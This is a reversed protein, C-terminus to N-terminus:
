GGEEGEFRMYSHDCMRKMKRTDTQRPKDVGDHRHHPEGKSGKSNRFPFFHEADISWLKWPKKSYRVLTGYTVRRATSSSILRVFLM